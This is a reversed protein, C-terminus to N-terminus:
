YGNLKWIVANERIEFTLTKRCALLKYFYKSIGPKFESNCNMNCIIVSKNCYMQGAVYTSANASYNRNGCSMAM